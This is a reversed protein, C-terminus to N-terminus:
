AVFVAIAWNGRTGRREKKRQVWTMSYVFDLNQISKELFRTEVREQPVMEDRALTVKYNQGRGLLPSFPFSLPGKSPSM